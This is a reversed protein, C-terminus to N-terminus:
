NTLARKGSVKIQKGLEESSIKLCYELANNLVRKAITGDVAFMNWQLGWYIKMLSNSPFVSSLSDVSTSSLLNYTYSNCNLFEVM